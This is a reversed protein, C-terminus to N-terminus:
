AYCECECRPVPCVTHGGRSGGMPDGQFWMRAHQAHFGHSCKVCFVTFRAMAEDLQKVREVEARAQDAESEEGASGTDEVIVVSASRGGKAGDKVTALISPSDKKEKGGSGSRSTPPGVITGTSAALDVSGSLGDRGAAAVVAGAVTTTTKKENDKGYWKLFSSDEKGLPLDCVGCKPLGRGCRPCVTGMAAATAPTLPHKNTEHIKTNSEHNNNESNPQDHHALGSNCYTCVLKIQPKTKQPKTTASLTSLKQVAIDFRVREFKMGWSMLMARYTSKWANYKRTVQPDNIHLPISPALALVATQVDGYRSVYSQFLSFTQPTGTGTLCVAELNGAEISTRLTSKLFDTLKDDSLQRLAICIRYRLPLPEINLCDSWSNSTVFALIALSFPDTVGDSLSDVTDHWSAADTDSTHQHTSGAVAMALMKHIQSGGKSRLIRSAMPRDNSVLAFFAAKTYHPPSRAVLRTTIADLDPPSWSLNLLHLSLQRHTMYSTHLGPLIPLHLRHVISPIISASKGSAVNQETCIALIGLHSISVSASVLAPAISQVRAVFSWLSQLRWSGAVIAKNNAANFAYSAECRLRATSLSALLGPVSGEAELIDPEKTSGHSSFSSMPQHRKNTEKHALREPHKGADDANLKSSHSHEGLHADMSTSPTLYREGRVFLSLSSITQPEPAPTVSTTNIGGYGTLLILEPQQWKTSGAMFDFSVVRAKEEKMASPHSYHREVDQARHLHVDQPMDLNQGHEDHGHEQPAGQIIDKNIEYVKLHGTSSLVGLCGRKTKAFRLSWISGPSDIANRLELSMEVQRQNVSSQGSFPVQAVSARSSMRRDWLCISPDNTPYCSAFYNEDSWDIALNNVCRTAFQLGNGTAPERLDYLRVFQGKVGAVLLQPNDQFFKISTITEGSALKHLPESFTKSFTKSNTQPLRQNFDWINLCFDTRVRDLGAALLNQSSLAVANCLRQSRVSFSVSDSKDDSINLLTAEGGAQGVVVLDENVPHWDFARFAPVKSSSAVSDYQISGKRKKTIQCLKFSKGTVDVYLFRQETGAVSNQSFRIATEM